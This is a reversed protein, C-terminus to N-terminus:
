RGIPVPPLGPRQYLARINSNGSEFNGNSSAREPEPKIKTANTKSKQSVPETQSEPNHFNFRQM